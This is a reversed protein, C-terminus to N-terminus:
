DDARVFFHWDFWRNGELTMLGSSPTASPLEHEYYYELCELMRGRQRHGQGAVPIFNM